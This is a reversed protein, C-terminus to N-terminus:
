PLPFGCSKSGQFSLLAQFPPSLSPGQPRPGLGPSPWFPTHHPLLQTPLSWSSHAVGPATVPFLLLPWLCHRQSCPLLGTFLSAVQPLSLATVPGPSCTSGSARGQSPELPSGPWTMLQCSPASDVPKGFGSAGKWREVPLPWRLTHRGLDSGQSEGGAARGETGLAPQVLASARAPLARPELSALVPTLENGWSWWNKCGGEGVGSSLNCM